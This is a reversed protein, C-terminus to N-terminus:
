CLMWREMIDRVFIKVKHVCLGYQGSFNSPCIQGLVLVHLIGFACM